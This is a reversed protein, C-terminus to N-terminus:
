ISGKGKRKRDPSQALLAALVGEGITLAKDSVQYCMETECRPDLDGVKMGRKVVVGNQILGRVVGRFLATIKQNNIMAITAGPEVLDGIQVEGMFSGDAPSYLVRERAFGNVPEPIGSDAEASGDIYVRGLDKGRQTEVVAHCNVGVTFGPGLGIVYPAADLSQDSGRKIMRGDVLGALTLGKCIRNEPDIIIAVRGEQMIIEAAGLSAALEGVVEEVLCHGNFVAQAFSVMRRVVLPVPLETILVKFGARRLVLAVGSALDGGGRILITSQIIDNRLM